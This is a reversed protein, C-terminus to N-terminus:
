INKKAKQRFRFDSARQLPGEIWLLPEGVAGIFSILKIEQQTNKDSWIVIQQNGLVGSADKEMRSTEIVPNGYKYILASKMEDFNFKVVTIETVPGNASEAFTDGSQRRLSINAVGSLLNINFNVNLWPKECDAISFSSIALSSLLKCDPLQDVEIGKIEFTKSACVIPLLAFAVLWRKM